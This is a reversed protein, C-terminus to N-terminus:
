PDSRCDGLVAQTPSAGVMLYSAAPPPPDVGSLFTLYCAPITGSSRCTPPGPAHLTVNEMLITLQPATVFASGGKQTFPSYPHGSRAISRHVPPHGQMSRASGRAAKERVPFPVQMIIADQTGRTFLNDESNYTIPFRHTNMSDSDSDCVVSISRAFPPVEWM